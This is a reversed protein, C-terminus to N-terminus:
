FGETSQRNMGERGVGLGQCDSIKRNNGYNQRKRFTTYNSDNLRKLNAGKVCYYTSLTGRHTKM